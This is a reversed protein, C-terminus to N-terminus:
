SPPPRPRVAAGGGYRIRDRGEVRVPYAEPDTQQVELAKPASCFEGRGSRICLGEVRAAGEDPPRRGSGMEGAPAGGTFLLEGFWQVSTAPPGADFRGIDRGDVVVWWGDDRRSLELGVDRGPLLAEGPARPAGSMLAFGCRRPCAEDGRWAHVFLRPEHDGFATPSVMWGVELVTAPVGALTVALEALSHVAQGSDPRHVSFTGAAGENPGTAAVGSWV